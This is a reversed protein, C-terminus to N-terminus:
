ELKKFLRMFSICIWFGRPRKICNRIIRLCSIQMIKLLRSTYILKMLEMRDIQITLTYKSLKLFFVTNAYIALVIILLVITSCIYSSIMYTNYTILYRNSYIMFYNMALVLYIIFIAIYKKHYELIHGGFQIVSFSFLILFLEVSLRLINFGVVGSDSIFGYDKDVFIQSYNNIIKVELLKSILLYVMLGKVYTNIIVRAINYGSIKDANYERKTFDYRTRGGGNDISSRLKSDSKHPSANIYNAEKYNVNFLSNKFIYVSGIGLLILLVTLAIIHINYIEKQFTELNCCSTSLCTIRYDCYYKM